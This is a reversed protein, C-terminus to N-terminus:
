EVEAVRTTEALWAAVKAPSGWAREPCNHYLFLVIEALCFRNHPDARQAAELLNNELVAHLFSGTPRRVAFYEILGNHLSRPVDANILRQRLELRYDDIRM